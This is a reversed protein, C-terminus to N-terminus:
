SPTLVPWWDFHDSYFKLCRSELGHRCSIGFLLRRWGLDHFLPWSGGVNSHFWNSMHSKLGQKQGAIWLRNSFASSVCNAASKRYAETSYPGFCRQGMMLWDWCRIAFTCTLWAVRIYSSSSVAFPFNM